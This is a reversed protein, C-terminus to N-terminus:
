PTGGLEIEVSTRDTVNLTTQDTHTGSWTGELLWRGATLEVACSGDGATCDPAQAPGAQGDLATIQLEPADDGAQWGVFRITVPKGRLDLTLTADPAAASLTGEAVEWFAADSGSVVPVVRYNGPSLWVETPETSGTFDTVLEDDGNLVRVTVPPNENSPTIALSVTYKTTEVARSVEVMQNPDAPISTPVTLRGPSCTVAPDTPSGQLAGITGKLTDGLDLVVEYCGWRVGSFTATYEGNSGTLSQGTLPPATTNQRPQLSVSGASLPAEPDITIKVQVTRTVPTLLVNGTQTEAPVGSGLVQFTVSVEAVQSYGTSTVQVLYTGAPVQTLSYQGAGDTTTTLASGSLDQAVDDPGCNPAQVTCLVTVTADAVTPEPSTENSTVTGNLTGAPRFLVVPDLQQVTSSAVEVTIDLGEAHLGLHEADVDLHWAGPTVDAFEYSGLAANYAGSVSPLVTNTLKVTAGVVPDQGELVKVRVTVSNARLAIDQTHVQGETIEVVVGPGDSPGQSSVLTYNPHDARLLWKGTTLGARTQSGTITFRGQSDTTGTLRQDPVLTNCNQDACKDATVERQALKEALVYGDTDDPPANGITQGILTGTVTGLRHLTATCDTTEGPNITIRNSGACDLIIRYNAGAPTSTPTGSGGLTGFAFGDARIRLTYDPGTPILGSFTALGHEPRGQTPLQEGLQVDTGDWLAVRADADIRVLDDFPVQSQDGDADSLLAVRLGGLQQLVLNDPACTENPQCSFTTELPAYGDATIKIDYKGPQVTSRGDDNWVLEGVSNLSASLDSQVDGDPGSVTVAPHVDDWSSPASNAPNTTVSADLTVRKPILTFVEPSGFKLPSTADYGAFTPYDEFGPATIEVREARNSALPHIRLANSDTIVGCDPVPDSNPQPRIAFCGNTDTILGSVTPTVSYPEGNADTGYNSVVTVNVTADDLAEAHGFVNSVVRGVLGPPSDTLDLRRTEESNNVVSWTVSRRQDSNDPDESRITYSGATLGTLRLRGNEDTRGNNPLAITPLPVVDVLAGELNKLSNDDAPAMVRVTLRGLRDMDFDRNTTTARVTSVQARTPAIYEPDSPAVYITYIGAEPVEVTYSGDAATAACRRTLNPETGEFTALEAYCKDAASVEPDDTGGAAIANTCPPLTPDTGPTNGNLVWVCSPTAPQDVQPIVRGAIKPVPYMDATPANVVSGAPVQVKVRTTEYGPASLTVTHLGPRLGGSGSPLRYQESPEFHATYTTGDPEDDGTTPPADTVSATICRPKLPHSSRCQRLQNGTSWERATGVISSTNPVVGGQQESLTRNLETTRGAKVTVQVHDTILGFMQTTMTYSGPTVGSFSYGGSPSSTSTTKYSADANALMLGAGELGQRGPGRVVGTLVGSGSTLRVSRNVRTQGKRLVLKTTLSQYGDASFTLSYRGPATLSPITYWGVRGVTVTSATRVAGAGDSITVTAGGVGRSKGDEGLRSVEGTLTTVGASLRLDATASGGAPLSVLRAESSMGHQSAMVVYHSPTSLGEISWSGVSGRTNTTTTVTNTGDNISVTAGGVAGKPGTIRGSLTGQGPDMPVELPQAAAETASDIVYKQTQFGPKSFTLLYYGPTKVGAFGWSGDGTSASTRVPAARRPSTKTFASALRLGAGALATDPVGVGIGGQAGEDVLSTPELRVSVDGPADGAVTGTLQIDQSPNGANTAKTGAGGAGGDSGGSGGSGGANAGGNAAGNGNGETGGGSNEKVQTTPHKPSPETANRVWTGFQPLMVMAMAVWIALATVVALAKALFPPLIPRQNVVGEAHKMADTGIASLTFQHRGIWGFMRPRRVRASAGVRVSGGGGLMVKEKALSVRLHGSSKVSLHVTTSETGNNRIRVGFRKRAITTFEAPDLEVVIQSRANVTLMAQAMGPNTTTVQGSHPDLAQASVALPYQAPLTGRSPHLVLQVTTTEGPAVVATRVPEPLWGPDVGLAAVLLVRPQDAENRVNVLVTTAVGAATRLQEQVALTPPPESLPGGTSPHSSDTM